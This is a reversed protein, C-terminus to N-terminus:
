LFFFLHLFLSLSFSLTKGANYNAKCRTLVAISSVGQMELQPITPKFTECNEGSVPEAEGTGVSSICELYFDLGSLKDRIEAYSFPNFVVIPNQNNGLMNLTGSCWFAGDAYTEKARSSPITFPKDSCACKFVDKMYFDPLKCHAMDITGVVDQMGSVVGIAWSFMADIPHKLLSIYMDTSLVGVNFVINQVFTTFAKLTGKEKPANINENHYSSVCVGMAKNSADQM